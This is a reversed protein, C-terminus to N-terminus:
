FYINRVLGLTHNLHLRVRDVARFLQDLCDDAVTEVSVGGDTRIVMRFEEKSLEGSGDTDHSAFWSGWGIADVQSQCAAQMKLWPQRSQKVTPDATQSLYRALDMLPLEGSGSRNADAFMQELEQREIAIVDRQKRSVLSGAKFGTREPESGSATLDSHIALDKTCADIFEGLVLSDSDNCDFRKFFTYWGVRSITTGLAQHLKAKVNEAWASVLMNNECHSIDEVWDQSALEKAEDMDFEVDGAYLVSAIRVHLQEYAVRSICDNGNRLFGRRLRGWRNSQSEQETLVRATAWFLEICEALAKSSRVSARQQYLKKGQELMDSRHKETVLRFIDRRTLSWVVTEMDTTSVTATRFSYPHELIAMEGFLSGPGLESVRGIGAVETTVTGSEVIYMTDGPRGETIIPIGPRSFNQRTLATALKMLEPERLHQFFPTNRLWRARHQLEERSGWVIEMIAMADGGRIHYLSTFELARVTATRVGELFLALEGFMEGEHDLQAIKGRKETYVGVTGGGLIYVSGDSKDGESFIAEGEAYEM